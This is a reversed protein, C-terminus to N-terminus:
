NSYETLLAHKLANKITDVDIDNLVVNIFKEAGDEFNDTIINFISKAPLDITMTMNVDTKFKAAKNVLITVPDNDIKNNINSEFSDVIDSSSNNVNNYEQKFNNETEYTLHEGENQNVSENDILGLLIQDNKSLFAKIEPKYVTPMGVFKPPIININTKHDFRDGMTPIEFEAGDKHQVDGFKSKDVSKDFINEFTWVDYKSSLQVMAKFKLDDKNTTFDAILGEYCIEGNDFEYYIEGDEVFMNTLICVEGCRNTNPLYQYYFNKNKM